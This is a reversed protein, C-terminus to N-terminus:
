KKRKRSKAEVVQQSSRKLVRRYVAEDDGSDEEVQQPVSQQNDSSVAVSIRLNEMPLALPEPKEDDEPTVPEDVEALKLRDLLNQVGVKCYDILATAQLVPSANRSMKQGTLKELRETVHIFAANAAVLRKIAEDRRVSSAALLKEISEATRSLEEEERRTRARDETASYKLKSLTQQLEERQAEASRLELLAAERLEQLHQHTTAQGSMREVVAEVSSVGLVMKMKSFISLYKKLENDIDAHVDEQEGADGDASEHRQPSRPMSMRREAGGATGVAIQSVRRDEARQRYETIKKERERRADYASQEEQQLKSKLLDRTREAGQKSERLKKLALKQQALTVNLADLSTNHLAAEGRLASMMATYHRKVTQAETVQVKTRELENELAVHEEKLARITTQEEKFRNRGAPHIKAQIGALKEELKNKNHNLANLKKALDHLKYHTHELTHAASTVRSPPYLPVPSPRSSVSSHRRKEQYLVREVAREEGQVAEHIRSRLSRNTARLNAIAAKNNLKEAESEEYFAKGEGETLLIKQRLEKTLELVHKRQESISAM